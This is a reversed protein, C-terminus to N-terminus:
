CNGTDVTLTVTISHSLSGSTGTITLKITGSTASCTGTVQLTSTGSGTVSTPSFSATIGSPLGSISLAVAGTFGGSPTAKITYTTSSPASVSRSSPTASLAFDGGGAANVALTVTTSHALTGSTGTITLPFSGTPTSATTAVTLTSNGSTTVSAPNFSATVGAPLGSVSLTVAGTFGGSPTVTATSTASGGPTVAVSAPTASIAYDPSTGEDIWIPASWMEDGSNLTVYIYYAHKGVTPTFTFDFPSTSSSAVLNFSGDTAGAVPEKIKISTVTHGASDFVSSHLTIAGSTAVPGQTRIGGDGMFFTAGNAKMTFALQATPLSTAYIRRHQWADFLAAKTLATAAFVTRDRTSAGYNSCHVDSDAAPGVHFGASLARNYMDISNFPSYNPGNVPEGAYRNGTDTGATSPDTAPGSIVAISHILDDGDTTYQFADFDLGEGAASKTGDSPHNFQGFAGFQSPNAIAATYMAPYNVGSPDTFVEYFCTSGLTCGAPDWGFLKPTEFLGVHGENPFDPNSIFGWEMGYIAVFSGDVNATAAAALGDHYRQIVQAASCGPCADAFLHNHDTIGLFDLHATNRAYAYAQAPTFDSAAHTTSSMCTTDNPHGGDSFTTQTHLTGYYHNFPFAPDQGVASNVTAAQASPAAVASNLRVAQASPAAVASNLTVAQAPPAPELTISRRQAIHTVRQGPEAGPRIVSRATSTPSDLEVNAEVTFRASPLLNGKDDRGDWAVSFEIPEEPHFMREGHLVRVVAGKEDQIAFNFQATTVADIPHFVAVTLNTQPQGAVSKLESRLVISSDDNWAPLDAAVARVCCLIAVTLALLTRKM